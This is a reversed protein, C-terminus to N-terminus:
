FGSAPAKKEKTAPKDATKAAAKTASSGIAPSDTVAPLAAAPNARLQTGDTLERSSSLIIVDGDIFPGSVYIREAGVHGLLDVAVDRVVGQRVIQVRRRGQEDTGIASTAVETVPSRPVLQAFVAQGVHWKQQPNDLVIVATALSTALDRVREFKPDAPQLKDIKADLTQNEVRLKFPESEQITERDVPVEVKLKSLDALTVLPEGAKVLQGAQAHIKLVHGDFPARSALQEVQWQLLKLDAQALKQRADALEVGQGTKKAQELELDAVKQQALGRELLLQRETAVMRVLPEQAKVSKGVEADVSQVTGDCPATMVLQKIPELQFAFRYTEPPTLRLPERRIVVPGPEASPSQSQNQSQNQGLGIAAVGIAVVLAAASARISTRHNFNTM